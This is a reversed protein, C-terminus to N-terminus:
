KVEHASVILRNLNTGIPVCTMLTLKFDKGQDMVSIDNPSVVKTSDVQYTFIANSYKIFVKDGASMNELLSFVNKYPSNVWPYYSSHGTLFINGPSGPLATGQSHVIGELLKAKLDADAVNWNIPADVGIKPIVLRAEGTVNVPNPTPTAIAKSYAHKQISVDWFYRTIKLFAPSNIGIYSVLFIGIFLSIFKLVTAGTFREPAYVKEPALHLQPEPQPPQPKPPPQMAPPPPGIEPGGFISKLDEEDLIDSM